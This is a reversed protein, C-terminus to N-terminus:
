DYRYHGSPELERSRIGREIVLYRRIEYCLQCETAYTAQLPVFGYAAAAYTLLAGIGGDYLRSILPYDAGDLPRGLDEKKISLGACMGPIYNGYLDIHFHSTDALEQCGGAKEEVLEAVTQKEVFPDFTELARGGPAISYRHPLNEMYTEGFHARYEELTHTAREDFMSLDHYFDAIWPFLAMGIQHCAEIVGKVKYFPIHENHFPSISVLLTDLGHAILRTLLACAADHNTFWSSNTEVYDIPVGSRAAAELVAILGEPNLLPEGGCILVHRCGLDRIIEFSAAAKDPSIFDKPWRPSCRYLCHRCASSCYYNTILGGSILNSIVLSM